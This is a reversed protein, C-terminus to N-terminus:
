KIWKDYQFLKYDEWYLEYLRDIQDQTIKNMYSQSTSFNTLVKNRSKKPYHLTEPAGILRLFEDGETNIEEFKIIFDYDLACPFCSQHYTLLHLDMGDRMNFNHETIMFDVFEPWTIHMINKSKRRKKIYSRLQPSIEDRGKVVRGRYASLLRILPHRVCIAKKYTRLKVILEEDQLYIFM